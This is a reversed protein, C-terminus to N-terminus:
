TALYGGDVVLTSGTMFASADSVLFLAAGLLDDPTGFRGVLMRSRFSERQAPDYLMPAVRATEVPGPALANVRIDYPALDVALSRTLMALGAKSVCYASRDARTVVGLQSAVNVIVGGQRAAMLRGAVQACRFPATLNVALVREWAAVDLDLASGAVSIAANNVLVDLTGFRGTATRMLEDVHVPDTVDGVVAEAEGGSAGIRAATEEVDEGRIDAVVVRMGEAALGVALARGIGGGAGTLVGVRGAVTFRDSM